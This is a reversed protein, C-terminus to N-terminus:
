DGREAARRALAAFEQDGTQAFLTAFLDSSKARPTGTIQGSLIEPGPGPGRALGTTVPELPRETPASLPTAPMAQARAAAIAQGLRAQEDVIPAARQLGILEQRQGYPLGTPAAAPQTPVQNAGPFAGGPGAVPVPAAEPTPTVPGGPQYAGPGPAQRTRPM